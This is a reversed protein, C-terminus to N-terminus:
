PIYVGGPATNAPSTATHDHRTSDTHVHITHEHNSNDGHVHIVTEYREQAATTATSQLDTRRETSTSGATWNTEGGVYAGLGTGASWDTYGVHAGSPADWAPGTYTTGGGMGPEWGGTAPNIGYNSGGGMAMGEPHAQAMQIQEATMGMAQMQEISPMGGGPGPGGFEHAPGGFMMGEGSSYRAMEMKAREVFEPPAGRSVMDSEWTKFMEQAHAVMEPSPTYREGSEFAKMTREGERMLLEIGKAREPDISRLREAERQMEGQVRTFQGRATERVADPIITKVDIGERQMVAAERTVAVREQIDTM